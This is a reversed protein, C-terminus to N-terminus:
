DEISRKLVYAHTRFGFRRKMAQGRITVMLLDPVGHDRGFEEMRDLCAKVYMKDLGPKAWAQEIRVFQKTDPIWCFACGVVETGDLVMIVLSTEKFNTLRNFVFKEMYNKDYTGDEIYYPRLVKACIPNRSKIVIM